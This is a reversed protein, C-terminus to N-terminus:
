KNIGLDTDLLLCYSFVDGYLKASQKVLNMFEAYDNDTNAIVQCGASINDVNEATGRMYARHINIGFMGTEINSVDPDLKADKDNDRYVPLPKYQVLAEYKGRHLGIKWSSAYYGPVLIATGNSNCPKLRYTLGPDTTAAYTKLVWSNNHLYFAGIVDNFKNSDRDKTNRVGFINLSMEKAFIRYNLKKYTELLKDISIQDKLRM